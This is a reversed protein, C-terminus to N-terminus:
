FIRNDMSEQHPIDLKYRPIVDSIYSTVDIKYRLM